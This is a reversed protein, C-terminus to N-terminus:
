QFSPSTKTDSASPEFATRIASPTGSSPDFLQALPSCYAQYSAAPATQDGSPRYRAYQSWPHGTGGPAHAVTTILLTFPFTMPENGPWPHASEHDGSEVRTATM